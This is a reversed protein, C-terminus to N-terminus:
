HSVTVLRETDIELSVLIISVQYTKVIKQVSISYVYYLNMGVFPTFLIRM